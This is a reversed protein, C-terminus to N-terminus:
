RIEPGGRVLSDHFLFSGRGCELKTKDVASVM